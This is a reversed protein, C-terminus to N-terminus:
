GLLQRVFAVFHPWREVFRYTDALGWAIGAFALVMLLAFVRQEAPSTRAAETAAARLQASASPTAAEWAALEAARVTRRYERTATGRHFGTPRATFPAPSPLALGPRHPHLLGPKQLSATM